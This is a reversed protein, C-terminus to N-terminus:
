QDLDHLTVDITITDELHLLDYVYRVGLVIYYKDDYSVNEDERPILIVNNYKGSYEISLILNNHMDIYRVLTDM